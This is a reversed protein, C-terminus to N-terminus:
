TGSSRQFCGLPTESNREVSGNKLRAGTSRGAGSGGGVASSAYFFCLHCALLLLIKPSEVVPSISAAGNVVNDDTHEFVNADSIDSESSVTPGSFNRTRFDRLCATMEHTSALITDAQKTIVDDALRLAKLATVLLPAITNASPWHKPIDEADDPVFKLEACLGKFEALSMVCSVLLM